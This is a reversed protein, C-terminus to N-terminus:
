KKLHPVIHDLIRDYALRGEIRMPPRAHRLGECARELARLRALDPDPKKAEELEAALRDREAIQAQWLKTLSRLRERLDEERWAQNKLLKDLAVAEERAVALAENQVSVHAEAAEVRATDTADLMALVSRAAEGLHTRPSAQIVARAAELKM